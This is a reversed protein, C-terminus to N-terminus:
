RISIYPRPERICVRRVSRSFIRRVVWRFKDNPGDLFFVVLTEMGTDHPQGM